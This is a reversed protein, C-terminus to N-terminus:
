PRTDAGAAVVIHNLYILQDDHVAPPPDVEGM